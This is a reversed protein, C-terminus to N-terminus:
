NKLFRIKHINKTEYLTLEFNQMPTITYFNTIFYNEGCPSYTSIKEFKFYKLCHFNRDKLKKSVKEILTFQERLNLFHLITEFVYREPLQLFTFKQFPSLRTLCM